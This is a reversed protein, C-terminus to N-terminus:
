QRDNLIRGKYLWLIPVTLSCSSNTDSFNRCISNISKSNNNENYSQAGEDNGSCEFCNKKEIGKLCKSQYTKHLNSPKIWRVIKKLGKLIKHNKIDHPHGVFNFILCHLLSLVVSQM